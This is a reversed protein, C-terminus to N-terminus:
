DQVYVAAITKGFLRSQAGLSQSAWKWRSLGPLNRLSYRRPDALRYATLAGPARGEYARAWRDIAAELPESIEINLAQESERGVIYSMRARLWKLMDGFDYIRGGGIQGDINEQWCRQVFIGSIMWLTIRTRIPKDEISKMGDTHRFEMLADKCGEHIM